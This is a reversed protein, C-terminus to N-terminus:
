SRNDGKLQNDNSWTEMMSQWIWKWIMCILDFLWFEHLDGIDDIEVLNEPPLNQNPDSM